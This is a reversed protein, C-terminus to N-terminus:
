PVPEPTAEPEPAAGGLQEMLFTAADAVDPPRATETPVTGDLFIEEVADEQGEYALLGSAPDIRARVIGSPEPFPAAPRDAVAARVAEVWIPLATRGGSERRGLSRRDDFGVWVAAAVEPTFGVFWADRAENSTGTKGAVPRGLRQARQATGDEVVSTLLDTVLFAEAPTLVDRPADRAPLPVEGEPGEIRRVFRPPAWRGGAAFTAYANAMELPTVESAGLALALTEGLESTIGLEAAFDAAAAPGVTEIARIAVVNVSRALARRLPVSGEHAWPEYNQPRWEDYVAPADIMVTAPTLERRKVGLAYVLPKFTSGPQRLAQRARDFGPGTGYAGVLALVDRSRPEILVVAGQPGLDLHGRAAGGEADPLADVIIKAVSGVPGFASAVMDDPDYRDEGDLDVLVETDGGLEFRLLREEDDTGVVRARYSRGVRLERPEELRPARRPVRLPGRRRQRRDVTELGRRLAARAASQVEADLTTHVTYGGRAYAEDGVAERLWRRVSTLLEPAMAEPAPVEALVVAAEGAATIEDETLDPWYPERKAKLQRLVYAQRRRAAELHTRPSLRSPAQPVGAILSAEALSLDKADKGFYYRAAEQVGYRGHGFNIHNLYLHLIEDKSLEQELRRALILERVKRSVTREPSLLLLKVVQQTITSAGQAVRGELVDRYLARLIGPYDLGEHRYFDADEAALVCLVFHRPIEEMPIVSRREDFIEGLLAGERDLVRTTQPPAYARLIAVDPLERGYWWFVAGLTAVGFSALALGLIVLRKLWRRLRSKPKATKRARATRTSASTRERPANKTSAGM